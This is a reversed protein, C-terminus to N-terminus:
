ANALMNAIVLRINAIASVLSSAQPDVMKGNRIQANVQNTFADLMALAGGLEALYTDRDIFGGAYQAVADNVRAIVGGNGALKAILGNGGPANSLTIAGVAASVNTQVFDAAADTNFVPDCADGLGDFDKDLQDANANIPCNDTQDAVGDNDDDPDCVDGVGDADNDAQEPNPTSPCNDVTDPVGDGDSDIAAPVTMVSSFAYLHHYNYNERCGAGCLDGQVWRLDAYGSHGSATINTTTSSGLTFYRSANRPMTGDWSTGVWVIAEVTSNLETVNIPNAITKDWLDAGSTAVLAGDLRYLAPSSAPLRNIANGGWTSGLVQWTVPNGEYSDLGQAAARGAVIADYIAINRSTAQHTTSTVFVLRFTAGPALGPPATVAAVANTSWAALLLLGAMLGYLTGRGKTKM